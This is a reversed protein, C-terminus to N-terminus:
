SLFVECQNLTSLCCLFVAGTASAVMRTSLMHVACEKAVFFPSTPRCHYSKVTGYCCCVLLQLLREPKILLRVRGLFLTEFACFHMITDSNFDVIFFRSCHTLTVFGNGKLLLELLSM